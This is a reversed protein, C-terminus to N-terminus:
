QQPVLTALYVSYEHGQVMFLVETSVLRMTDQKWLESRVTWKFTFPGEQTSGNRVAMAWQKTVITENMVYEAVRTAMTKRQAVEGARSALSLGELAVPIVIAMFVMAALIEALTFGARKRDAFRPASEATKM